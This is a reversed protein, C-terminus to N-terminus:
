KGGFVELIDMIMSGFVKIFSKVGNKSQESFDKIM